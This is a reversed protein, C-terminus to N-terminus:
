AGDIIRAVLADYLELRKYARFDPHATRWAQAFRALRGPEAAIASLPDIWVRITFM